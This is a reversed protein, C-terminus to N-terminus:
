RTTLALCPADILARSGSALVTCLPVLHTLPSLTDWFRRGGSAESAAFASNPINVYTRREVVRCNRSDNNNDGM